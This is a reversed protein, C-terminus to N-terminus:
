RWAFKELNLCMITEKFLQLRQRSTLETQSSHLLKPEGGVPSGLRQRLIQSPQPSGYKGEM